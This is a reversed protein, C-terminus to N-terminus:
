RQGSFNIQPHRILVAVPKAVRAGADRTTANLGHPHPLASGQIPHTLEECDGSGLEFIVFAADGDAAAVVQSSLCVLRRLRKDFDSLTRRVFPHQGSRKLRIVEELIERLADAALIIHDAIEGVSWQGPAPVSDFEQQSLPAMLELTRLRVRHLDDLGRTLMHAPATAM